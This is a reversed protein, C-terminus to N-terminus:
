SSLAAAAERLLQLTQKRDLPRFRTTPMYIAIMAVLVGSTRVPVAMGALGEELEDVVSSYDDRRCKEVADLFDRETTITKDTWATFDLTPVLARVDDPPLNALLLRVFGSASTTLTENNWSRAAIVRPPHLEELVRASAPWEPVAFFVTEQTEDVLRQLLARARDRLEVPSIARSLRLLTPGILWARDADRIVAGADALSGLLRTVTARPMGAERSLSAVSTGDPHAAIHELLDFARTLSRNRGAGPLVVAGVGGNDM